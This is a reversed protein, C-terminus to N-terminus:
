SVRLSSIEPVFSIPKDGSGKEGKQLLPTPTRRAGEGGGLVVLLQVWPLPLQPVPLRPQCGLQRGLPRCRVSVPPPLVQYLM